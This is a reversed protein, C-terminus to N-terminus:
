NKPKLLFAAGHSHTGGQETEFLLDGTTDLLIGGSPMLGDKCIAKSCFNYLVKETGGSLEYIVGEGFGGALATGYLEGSSGLAVASIPAAGDPCGSGNCFSYLVSEQSDAGNPVIKYVAGFNNAGGTSTNGILAGTGDFVLEARPNKGDTCNAQACFDYLVTYAHTGAAIEYAVGGGNAGGTVLTGYLNGSADALLSAFPDGGDTCTSGDESCFTRLITEKWKRGKPTLAFAVGYGINGGNQLGNGGFQTIGYLPSTGDYLAGSAAGAYTLGRGGPMEGDAQGAHTCFDFLNKEKWKTRAANPILEYAIGCNQAGGFATTGYVDGSTDLIVGSEPNSGDTCDSQACFSYLRHSKWTGDGVPTLEFVVGSNQFGGQFTAGYLNGAADMTLGQIPTDGDKCQGNDDCFAHLTVAGKALVHGPFAAIGAVALGLTLARALTRLGLM